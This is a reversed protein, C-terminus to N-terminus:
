TQSMIHTLVFSLISFDTGPGGHCQHLKQKHLFHFKDPRHVTGQIEKQQHCCYSFCISQCLFCLLRELFLKCYYHGVAWPFSSDREQLASEERPYFQMRSAKRCTLLLGFIRFAQVQSWRIRGWDWCGAPIHVSAEPPCHLSDLKSCETTGVYNCTIPDHGLWHFILGLLQKLLISAIRHKVPQSRELCFFLSISVLRASGAAKCLLIGSSGACQQCGGAGVLVWWCISSLKSPSAIPSQSLKFASLPSPSSSSPPLLEITDGM